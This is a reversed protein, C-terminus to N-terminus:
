KKTQKPNSRADLLHLFNQFLLIAGITSSAIDRNYFDTNRLSIIGVVIIVNFITYVPHKKFFYFFRTIAKNEPGSLVKKMKFHSISALILPILHLVEFFIKFIDLKM